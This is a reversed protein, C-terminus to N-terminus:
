NGGGAPASLLTEVAAKADAVTFFDAGGAHRLAVEAIFGETGLLTRAHRVLQERSFQDDRYTGDEQAPAAAPAPAPSSAAQPASPPAAPAQTASEAPDPM